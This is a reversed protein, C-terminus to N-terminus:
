QQRRECLFVETKLTPIAYANYVYIQLFHTYSTM